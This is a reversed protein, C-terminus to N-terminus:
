KIRAKMVEARGMQGWAPTDDPIRVINTVVINHMTTNLSAAIAATIVAILEESEEEEQVVSIEPKIEKPKQVTTVAPKNGGEIIRVIKSMMSTLFWILILASFTVFMGLVIVFLTALLKDGMSMQVFTEAHKFNELLHM